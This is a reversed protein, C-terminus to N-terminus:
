PGWARPCCPCPRGGGVGRLAELLPERVGREEARSLLSAAAPASTFSVADVGGGIVADLLRDLPALDEPAM